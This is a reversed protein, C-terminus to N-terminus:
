HWVWSSHWTVSMCSYTRERECVLLNESTSSECSETHKILRLTQMTCSTGHWSIIDCPWMVCLAMSYATVWEHSMAPAIVWKHTHCSENHCACACMCVCLWACVHFVNPIFVLMFVCSVNPIFVLMRIFVLMFVCSICQCQTYGGLHVCIIYM